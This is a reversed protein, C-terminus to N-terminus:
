RRRPVILVDARTHTLVSESVSGLILRALGTKGAAGLVVLDTKGRSLDLLLRRPDVARVVIETPHGHWWADLMRRLIKSREAPTDTASAAVITPKAAPLMLRAVRIARLCDASQDYGIVARRHPGRPPVSAVLVPRRSRRVLRAATTGIFAERLRTSGHRGVCVLDVNQDSAIRSLETANDGRALRTRVTVDKRGRAALANRLKAAVSALDQEARGTIVSAAARDLREPLVHVVLITARPALPLVAVRRIARDADLSFDTGVAVSALGITPPIRTARSSTPTPM